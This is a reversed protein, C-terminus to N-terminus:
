KTDKAKTITLLVKSIHEAIIEIKRIFEDDFPSFSTLEIIGASEKNHLLPIIILHCAKGRGLGSVVDTYNDPLNNIHLIKQDKASQGNLGEGPFFPVPTSFSAYAYTSLAEFAGTEDNKYYFIGQTIEFERALNMLIRGTYDGPTEGPNIKPIIKKALLDIDVKDLTATSEPKEDQEPQNEQGTDPKQTEEHISATSTFLLFFVLIATALFGSAIILLYFSNGVHVASNLVLKNWLTILLLILVIILMVWALIAGMRYKDTIRM